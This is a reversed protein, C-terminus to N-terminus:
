GASELEASLQDPDITGRGLLCLIKRGIREREENCKIRHKACYDNLAKALVALEASDAVGYASM